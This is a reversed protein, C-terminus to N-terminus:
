GELNNKIGYFANIEKEFALKINGTPGNRHKALILEVDERTQAANAERNYYADRYLFMVLDADQELAGSERLDSLMPRKDQRSEVGRSLQSLAIVPVSLERAMAKLERSIQSVEQQRSEVNGKPSGILQIYDIVVLSIGHDQVLKRANAKIQAVSIGPTDDIYFNQRRLEQSAENLKSWDADTLNGTRIKQIEVKAKDALIRIAVQEAPMELSFIAIAGNSVSASNVALNLAFATKGMSPRAALIVLDGKQFGNTLRDLDPYLSRIGTQVGSEQIEEVHKLTTEFLENGSIFNNDVRSRTVNLIKDEANKLLEDINNEGNFADNSIEEGTKIINRALSKNKVIKIYEKTNNASITSDALQMLYELGGIKDYLGYDKLKTSLSVTDIKEKNSYMSDMLKYISRHKELYFDSERIGSDVCERMADDYLMINGLLSEEAEISFPMVKNTM